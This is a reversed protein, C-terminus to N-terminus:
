KCPGPGNGVPNQKAYQIGQQILANDAPRDGYPPTGSGPIFRSGSTGEGGPGNAIGAENQLTWDDWGYAYGAAGYNFNGFTDYKQADPYPGNKYDWPGGTRVQNYFWQARFALTGLSFLVGEERRSPAYNPQQFGMSKATVMNQYLSVGPPGEPCRIDGPQLPGIFDHPYFRVIGATAAGGRGSAGGVGDGSWSSIGHFTILGPGAPELDIAHGWVITEPMVDHDMVVTVDILEVLEDNGYADLLNAPDNGVFHYLNIGGAEQVPDRNIWRQPGPDYYRVGFYYFGSNSDMEKSSFRYANAAALPGSQSLTAGFPDYLYEAAMTQNSYILCTINGNGDAHYYAHADCDAAALLRHDTRAMLGGIGGAGQFTGSLDRGRTYSDTPLNHIDREQIALNGDYVYHVENTQLWAGSSWAYERRVRRRMRGDYVFDSRWANTVWVSVLENEDDYAFNRTGDSLLNGDLDYSFLGPSLACSISNTDARGTSDKAIATFTNNGNIWPQSPSAFTYDGYLVANSANVTVNTASGTTTGAVTLTGSNTSTTLENLSNFAFAQLLANNTRWLLNHAADYAYGLQEHLRNTVGAAEKGTATKLQGLPDYAYNVFDGATFVQQTRENGANYTYSHSNLVAGGSNLLRTNLLHAVNDYSNTVYAGNPLSVRDPLTSRV